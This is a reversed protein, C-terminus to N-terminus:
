INDTARIINLTRLDGIIDAVLAGGYVGPEGQFVYADQPQEGQFPPNPTGTAGGAAGGRCGAAAIMATMVLAVVIKKMVLMGESQAAQLKHRSSTCPINGLLSIDFEASLLCNKWIRM